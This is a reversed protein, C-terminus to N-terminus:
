IKHWYKRNKDAKQQRFNFEKEAQVIANKVVPMMNETALKIIEVDKVKLEFSDLLPNTEDTWENIITKFIENKAFYITWKM